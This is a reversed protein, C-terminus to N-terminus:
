RDPRAFLKTLMSIFRDTCDYNVSYYVRSCDNELKILGVALLANIHHSVTAPTLSLVSALERGYKPGDLLLTLIDFRSRSGLVNMVSSLESNSDNMICNKLLTYLVGMGGFVATEDDLFSFLFKDFYTFLPYVSYSKVSSLSRKLLQSFFEEEDDRTKIHKISNKYIELLPSILEECRKFEEAVPLLTRELMDMYVSPHLVLDILLLKNESCISSGMIIDFLESQTPANEPAEGLIQSAIRSGINGIDNRAKEFCDEPSGLREIDGILLNATFFNGPIHPDIPENDLVSYLKRIEEDEVTIGGELKSELETLLMFSKDADFKAQRNSIDCKEWITKTSIGLQRNALFFHAELLPLPEFYMM